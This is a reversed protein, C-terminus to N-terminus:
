VRFVKINRLRIFNPSNSNIQLYFKLIYSSSGTVNIIQSSNLSSIVDNTTDIYENLSDVANIRYLAFSNVSDANTSCNFTIKINPANNIVFNSDIIGFNTSLTISLSDLSLIVTEGNPPGGSNNTSDNGCGYLYTFCVVLCILLYKM